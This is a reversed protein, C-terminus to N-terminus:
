GVFEQISVFFMYFHYFNNSRALVVHEFKVKIMNVCLVGILIVKNEDLSYKTVSLSSFLRWM